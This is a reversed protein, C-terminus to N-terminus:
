ASLAEQIRAVPDRATDPEFTRGTIREYLEVYRSAVEIRFEDPLDPLQQGELGQFGNEMLWERVFEKSLQRQPQDRSLLDLYTDDYFYRSSDPTHIEDIVVFSEDPLRGFEYKTDVLILGRASAMDSGRRFLALALSRLADLTAGDLLGREVIETASIDEDHGEEAKTAPTLIPEPLKSNQILGDPLAEGCLERGGDRYVRWAHGALYGRVVFEIPVPECRRAVTVNPDPVEIVHNPMVDATQEFFWAALLNLVQGKFPITQKLIHDFASIRDTTVLILRDSDAYTDRVKGAYRAGLGEFDTGPLTYDLQERILNKQM